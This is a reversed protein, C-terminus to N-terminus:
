ENIRSVKNMSNKSFRSILERTIIEAANGRGFVSIDNDKKKMKLQQFTSLIESHVASCCLANGSEIVEPWFPKEMLILVPKNAFFAERQLGGSDTIVYKCHQLVNQMDLYGLPSILKFDVQLGYKLLKKRTNPHIPFIIKCQKNIENLAFIINKLTDPDDINQRRHITCIIYDGKELSHADFLDSKNSFQNQFYYYADLMIDGSLIVKTDIMGSNYGEKKLNEVGLQTCCFNLSSVRDTIYRNSEEPMHEEFTRIGSEIHVVPIQLKKGALAGALTTNTDGFVIILDPHEQLIAPELMELFKGLMAVHSLSNVELDIIPLDILLEEFFVDSMEETFHQGTHIVTEKIFPYQKIHHHLVALKVFQPRNGVIYLIKM